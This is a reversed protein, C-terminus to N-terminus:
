QIKFEQINTVALSPSGFPDIKTASVPKQHSSYGLAVISSQLLLLRAVNISVTM